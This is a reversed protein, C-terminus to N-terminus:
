QARIPKVRLASRILPWMNSTASPRNNWVTTLNSFRKPPVLALSMDAAPTCLVWGSVTVYQLKRCFGNGAFSIRFKGNMDLQLKGYKYEGVNVWRYRGPSVQKFHIISYRAPGDGNDDFQFRDGSLGAVCIVHNWDNFSTWNFNIGLWMDSALLAHLSIVHLLPRGLHCVDTMQHHFAHRKGTFDVKRLYRLLETGDIPMMEKCLGRQGRCIKQHM